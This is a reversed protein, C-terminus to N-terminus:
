GRKQWGSFAIGCGIHSLWYNIPIIDAIIFAKARGFNEQLIPKLHVNKKYNYAYNKLKLKASNFMEFDGANAAVIMTQLLYYIERYEFYSKWYFDHETYPIMEQKLCSSAEVFRLYHKPNRYSSSMTGDGVRYYYLEEKIAIPNKAALLVKIYAEDFCQPFMNGINLRVLLDKRVLKNWPQSNREVFTVDKKGQYPRFWKEKTKIKQPYFVYDCYVLDSNQRIATNYLKEFMTKEVFDDADVWGVYDGKAQELAIKRTEYLGKNPQEMTRVKEPYKQAYQQIIEASHDTSGDNVVLIEIDELTQQTLSDLCQELYREANYVPVIITVKKM